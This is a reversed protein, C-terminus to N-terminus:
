SQVKINLLLFIIRALLQDISKTQRRKLSKLVAPFSKQM